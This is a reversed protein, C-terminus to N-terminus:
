AWYIILGALLAFVFLQFGVIIYFKKRFSEKLTKHHLIKQAAYAAPTAGLLTLLHLLSEPVRGLSTQSLAKDIVYLMFLTINLAGVFAFLWHLKLKAFFLFGLFATMIVAVSAFFVMSAHRM